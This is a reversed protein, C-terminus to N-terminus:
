RGQEILALAAVAVIPKTMSFGRFVADKGIPKTKASDLFGHAEFHVIKGNRAILTVAGPMTGKAIEDKMVPAIRSLREPSFGQAESAVDRASAAGAALGAALGLTVLLRMM